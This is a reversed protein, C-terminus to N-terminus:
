HLDLAAGAAMAATVFAQLSADEAIRRRGIGHAQHCSGAGSCHGAEDADGSALADICALRHTDVFQNFDLDVPRCSFHTNSCGSGWTPSERQQSPARCRPRAAEAYRLYERRWRGIM